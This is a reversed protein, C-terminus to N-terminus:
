RREQYASVFIFFRGQTRWLGRVHRVEGGLLGRNRTRVARATLRAGIGQQLDEVHMPAIGMRWAPGPGVVDQGCCPPRGVSASFRATVIIPPPALQNMAVPSQARAIRPSPTIGAQGRILSEGEFFLIEGELV